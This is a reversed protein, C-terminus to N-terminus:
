EALTAAIRKPDFKRVKAGHAEALWVSGLAAQVVGAGEGWFQQVVKESVADIRTLPFNTMSVWLSGEGISIAGATAPAGLEITKTVKNTKPDIRDIKGDKECLVWVSTEGITLAVPRESVEITKDILNTAPDVRLVKNEAPCTLWLATEGFSLSNCDPFVRFEAVVMNQVPDIRSLTGRGDTFAWVSDATAAIGARVMPAGVPLTATMKGTKAEARVMSGDGCNPIWLSNFASVVGACPSKLGGIPDGFKAEKAKPDVRLLSTKAPIWVADTAGVWGAPAETEYALESVLSAFPIQVGPTRIGGAPRALAAKKIEKVDKREGAAAFVAALLCCLGTALRM